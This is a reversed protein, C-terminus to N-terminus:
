TAAVAPVRGRGPVVRGALDDGAGLQRELRVVVSVRPLPDRDDLRGVSTPTEAQDHFRGVM